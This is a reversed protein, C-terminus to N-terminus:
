NTKCHPPGGNIHKELFLFYGGGGLFFFFFILRTVTMGLLFFIYSDRYSNNKESAHWGSITSDAM